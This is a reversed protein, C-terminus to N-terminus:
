IDNTGNRGNGDFALILIVPETYSKAPFVHVYLECNVVVILQISRPHASKKVTLIRPPSFIPVWIKVQSVM